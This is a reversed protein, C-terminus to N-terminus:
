SNSTESASSDQQGPFQFTFELTQKNRNVNTENTDMVAAPQVDAFDSANVAHPQFHDCFSIVVAVILGIMAVQWAEEVFERVEKMAYM